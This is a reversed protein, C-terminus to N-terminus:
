NLAPSELGRRRFAGPATGITRKFAKAFSAESEYGVREAIQATTERGDRLMEAALHMRWRQLYDMPTDGLLRRFREAFVSRSLSVAQALREVTWPEHPRRQMLDLAEDIAPDKVAQPLGDSGDDRVWGRLSQIFLVDCLRDLVPRVGPLAAMSENSLLHLTEGIGAGAQGNEGKLLIYRPLARYLPHTNGQEFYFVGTIVSTFPGDGGFQLTIGSRCLIKAREVLTRVDTAPSLRVDQVSHEGSDFVIVLDGQELRVPKEGPFSLFGGGAEVFHFKATGPQAPFTVGWPEGLVVRNQLFSRLRLSHLLSDLSKM